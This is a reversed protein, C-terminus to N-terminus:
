YIFIEKRRILCLCLKLVCEMKGEIYADAKEITDAPPHNVVEYEIGMRNLESYVKEKM